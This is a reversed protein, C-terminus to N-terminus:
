QDSSPSEEEAAYFVFGEEKLLRLPTFGSEVEEIEIKMEIDVRRRLSPHRDIKQHVLALAKERAEPEDRAWVYENKIFGCPIDKGDFVGVLNEGNVRVRFVSM